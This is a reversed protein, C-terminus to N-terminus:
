TNAPGKGRSEGEEEPTDQSGQEPEVEWAQQLARLGVSHVVQNCGTSQGSMRSCTQFTPEWCLATDYLYKRQAEIMANVAKEVCQQSHFVSKSHDEFEISGLARKLDKEAEEFYKRAFKEYFVLCIGKKASFDEFKYNVCWRSAAIM